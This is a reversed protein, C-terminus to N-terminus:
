REINEAAYVQESTLVGSDVLRYAEEEEILAFVPMFLDGIGYRQWMRALLVDGQHQSDLQGLTTAYTRLTEGYSYGYYDLLDSYYGAMISWAQVGECECAAIRESLKQMLFDEDPLTALFSQIGAESHIDVTQLSPFAHANISLLSAALTFGISRKIM